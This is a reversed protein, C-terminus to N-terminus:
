DTEKCQQLRIYFTTGKGEESECTIAGQHDTVIRKVIALGLGTGRTKNYTFFPTFINNRIKEPMGKGSDQLAIVFHDKGDPYCKLVFHDGPEMAERANNVINFIVRKFKIEDLLANGPYTCEYLYDIGALELEVSILASVSDIFEPIHVINLNSIPTGKAFDLIERTMEVLQDITIVITKAYKERQEQSLQSRKLIEAFGRITTMPNKIDHIIRSALDGVASLREAKILEQQMKKLENYAHQLEVNQRQLDRIVNEDTERLKSSLSLAITRWFEPRHGLLLNFDDQLIELLVCHNETKASASRPKKNFIAMEGLMENEIRKAIEKPTGDPFNKYISISGKFIIYLRDAEDDENFLVTGPPIQKVTTIEMLREFFDDDLECFFSVKKLKGRISDTSYTAKNTM